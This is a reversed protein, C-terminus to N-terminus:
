VAATRVRTPMSFGAPRQAQDDTASGQGQRLGACHGALDGLDEALRHLEPEQGGVSVVRRHREAERGTREHRCKPFRQQATLHIQEDVRELVEGGIGKGSDDKGRHRVAGVRPVGGVLVGRVARVLLNGGPRVGAPLEARAEVMLDAVPRDYLM